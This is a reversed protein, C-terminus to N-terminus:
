PAAPEYWVKACRAERLRIHHPHQTGADIHFGGASADVCEEVVVWTITHGCSLLVRRFGIHM